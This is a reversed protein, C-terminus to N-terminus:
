NEKLVFYKLRIEQLYDIFNYASMRRKKVGETWTKKIHGYLEKQNINVIKNVSNFSNIIYEHDDSVGSVILKKIFSLHEYLSVYESQM